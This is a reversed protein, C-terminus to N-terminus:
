YRARGLKTREIM